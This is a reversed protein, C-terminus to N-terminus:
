LTLEKAKIAADVEIWLVTREDDIQGLIVLRKNGDDKKHYSMSAIRFKRGEYECPLRRSDIDGENFFYYYFGDGTTSDYTLGRDVWRTKVVKDIHLFGFEASSCKGLTLSDGINIDTQAKSLIPTTSLLLIYILTPVTTKM